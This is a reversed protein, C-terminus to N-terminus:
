SAVDYGVPSLPSRWLSTLRFTRPPPPPAIAAAAAACACSGVLLWCHRVAVAAPPAPAPARPPPPPLFILQCLAPLSHLWAAVSGLHLCHRLLCCLRCLDACLDM